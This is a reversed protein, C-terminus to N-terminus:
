DDKAELLESIKILEEMVDKTIPSYGTKVFYFAREVFDKLAKNYSLRQSLLMCKSCVEAEEKRCPICLKTKM